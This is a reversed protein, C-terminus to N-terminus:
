RTAGSRGGSPPNLCSTQGFPALGILNDILSASWRERVQPVRSQLTTSPVHPEAVDFYVDYTVRGDRSSGDRADPNVAAQYHFWNGFRDFFNADDRYHLSISFVGLAPLSYLESPQSIGDHNEDIWLRLRPFVADRKDIMGDDNGGNERKDFEALALFGNPEGTEPQTTFNGFLEKGSDIQKNGNRDLALFANGSQTATWAMKIPHGNGMIDFMVGNEVDTLRFGLGTTDVIIPSAYQCACGGGTVNGCVQATAVHLKVTVVCLRGAPHAVYQMLPITSPEM